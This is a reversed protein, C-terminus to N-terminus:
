PAPKLVATFIGYPNRRGPGSSRNILATRAAGEVRGSFEPPLLSDAGSIVIFIKKGYIGAQAEFLSYQSQRSNVSLAHTVPHDPMYFALYAADQYLNTCLPMSGDPNTKKRVTDIALAWQKWGRTQETPDNGPSLPLIPRQIHVLVTLTAAVALTVSFLMFRRLRRHRKADSEEWLLALLAMGSVYAGCPWNPEVRKQLSSVTFFVLPAACFVAIFLRRPNKRHFRFEKVLAYVLLIFPFISLMGLQGGLFDGLFDFRPFKEGGMGHRMQYMVSIWQHHSNWYLNPLVMLGALLLAGILRGSVLLRRHEKSCLLFVLLSIIFLGFLYKSLLGLGMCLGLLLWSWPRNEFIFLYAAYLGISWFLVMPIDPTALLGGIGFLIVFNSLIILMAASSVKRVYKKALFYTFLSALLSGFVAMFKVGLVTTGFLHTGLFIFWAVMPPHDFYGFAPSRSWDWYYAEDAVLGMSNVYIMRAIFIAALLSYAVIDSKEIAHAAPLSAPSHVM